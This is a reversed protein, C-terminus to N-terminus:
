GIDLDKGTIGFADIKSRKIKPDIRILDKM